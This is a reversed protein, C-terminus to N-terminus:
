LEFVLLNLVAQMDPTINREQHFSTYIVRGQGVDFGVTFPINAMSYTAFTDYNIADASGRIYIRTAAAATKMAVWQNLDYSVDIQQQGLAARIGPDVVEATVAQAIGVKADNIDEPNAGGAGGQWQVFEPFAREIVPAAWDSAYISGGSEVFQRLNAAYIGANSGNVIPYDKLGCNFFIIDYEAMAAYNGLFSAAWTLNRGDITTVNAPDLGLGPIECPHGSQSAQPDNQGTLVCRVNDYDGSVVAVKTITPIVQCQEEPITATGNAPVDVTYTATFSNKVVTITQQGAPVNTLTFRGDADTTTQSPTTNQDTGVFVTAGALWTEGDPACVRGQVSGADPPPPPPECTAPSPIQATQGSVVTVTWSRAFFDKEARVIQDGAPVNTLSFHGSADTLTEIRNGGTVNIYVQAGAVWGVNEECVNGEVQGGPPPSCETPSPVDTVQADVVVIGAIDEVFNDKAIHVDYTGPAVGVFEYKGEGDTVGPYAASMDGPLSLWAQAYAAWEGVEADCSRGRVTGGEPPPPPPPEHCGEDVFEVWQDAVVVVEKTREVSGAKGVVNYTGPSVQEVTFKGKPDGVATKGEVPTTDRLVTVEVRGLGEGTEPDCFQGRINGPVEALDEECQCAMPWAAM